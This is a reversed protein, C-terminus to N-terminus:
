LSIVGNLSAALSIVPNIHGGSIPFTALLLVTITVAILFSMILHPTKNTDRPLLRSCLGASNDWPARSSISELGSLETANYSQIQKEEDEVLPSSEPELIPM